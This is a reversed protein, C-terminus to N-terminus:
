KEKRKSKQIKEKRIFIYADLIPYCVFSVSEISSLPTIGFVHKQMHSELQVKETENLAVSKVCKTQSTRM